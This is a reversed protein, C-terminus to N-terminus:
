ASTSASPARGTAVAAVRAPDEPPRDGRWAIHLDPRVLLLDREYITRVAPDAFELVALPAGLARFTAELGTTDATTAGLRLLTYGVGLRDHLASGGGAAGCGTGIGGADPCAASPDPCAVSPNPYSP